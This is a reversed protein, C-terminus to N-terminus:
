THASKPPWRLSAGFSTGCGARWTDPGDPHSGTCGCTWDLPRWFGGGENIVKRRENIAEKRRKREHKRWKLRKMKSLSSPPLRPVLVPPPPSSWDKRVWEFCRPCLVATKIGGDALPEIRLTSHDRFPVVSELYPVGPGLVPLAM